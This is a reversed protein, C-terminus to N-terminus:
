HVEARIPVADTYDRYSDRVADADADFDGALDFAVRGAHGRAHVEMYGDLEERARDTMPIDALDYIREVMAVDDGVFEHFLCDFLQGEPVADRDRLYSDLLQSYRASWYEFVADADPAKERTRGAYAVMTAISQLSAVPDRHTAIVVADPFVNMIPVLQELHQPSKVIWRRREGRQWQLIQLMLKEYAYHPTQDHGLYYDRWEPARLRFEWVYSSFDQMQLEGDESIHDADMPHLANAYPNMQQQASWGRDARTWRPDIGDAGPRDEAPIPIPRLAEWYPLSQFRSDAAILNLLHTTGSRPLGAVILPAEIPEALIEPHRKVLDVALARNAAKEAMWNFAAQQTLPTHGEWRAAELLLALRERFDEPGFDELRSRDRAAALVAEESLDITAGEARGLATRQADNLVPERLDPIKLTETM